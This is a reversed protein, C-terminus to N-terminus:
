ADGDEASPLPKNSDAPGKSAALAAYADPARPKIAANDDYNAGTPAPLTSLHSIENLFILSSIGDQYRLAALGANDIVFRFSPGPQDILWAEILRAIPTGHSILVINDDPKTWRGKLLDPLSARTGDELTVDVPPIPRAPNILGIEHDFGAFNGAVPLDRRATGVGSVVALAGGAAVLALLAVALGGFRKM